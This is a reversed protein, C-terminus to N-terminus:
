RQRGFNLAETRGSTTTTIFTNTSCERLIVGGLDADLGSVGASADAGWREAFAGANPAQVPTMIVRTGDSAFVDDFVRTFKSDRDCILFWPTTM